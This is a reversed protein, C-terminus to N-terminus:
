GNGDSGVTFTAGGYAGTLHLNAVQVTGDVIVLRDRANVSAGTAAIDILDITDGAALGGLTAAVGTPDALALTANAGNFDVRLADAATADLELTAGAAISATGAGSVAGALDLTGANAQIAGDDVVAPGIAAIGGADAMVLAGEVKLSSPTASGEAIGFAGGITWTAGAAIVAMATGGSADGLTIAGTQTATGSISLTSAGGITLGSELTAAAANLTGGGEILGGLNTAGGLTLRGGSAIVLSAGHM